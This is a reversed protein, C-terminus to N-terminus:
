PTTEAEEGLRHDHGPRSKGKLMTSEITQDIMEATSDIARTEISQKKKRKQPHVIQIAFELNRNIDLTTITISTRVDSYGSTLRGTVPKPRDLSYNIM